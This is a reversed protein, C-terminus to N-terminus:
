ATDGNKQLDWDSTQQYGCYAGTTIKLLEALSVDDKSVSHDKAVVEIAEQIRKDEELRRFQRSEAYTRAIHAVKETDTPNDKELAQGAENMASEMAQIHSDQYLNLVKRDQTQSM